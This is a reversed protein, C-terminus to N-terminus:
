RTSRTWRARLLADGGGDTAEEDDLFAALEPLLVAMAGTEWLLWMSRHAAGGRLLRLIEEFVRPGRPRRSTRAADVVMADYVDPAIGLDLRAAFKIARLIRVPDERFRVIPEGITHIARRESTRCAAAGTSSRAAISTTSSRTSRSTAASRTRTRRASSTTAASSSTTAVEGDADEPAEM